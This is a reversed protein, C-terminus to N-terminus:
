EEDPTVGAAGFEGPDAGLADALRKRTAPKPWLLGLELNEITSITCNARYGLEGQSLGRAQRLELVKMGLAKPDM